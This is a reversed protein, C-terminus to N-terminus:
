SLCHVVLLLGFSPTTQKQSFVAKRKLLKQSVSQVKGEICCIKRWHSKREFCNLRGNTKRSVQKKFPLVKYKGFVINCETGDVANSMNFPISWATYLVNKLSKSVQEFSYQMIEYSTKIQFGYSMAMFPTQMQKLWIRCEKFTLAAAHEELFVMGSELSPVWFIEKFSIAREKSLCTASQSLQLLWITNCHFPRRRTKFFYYKCVNFINCIEKSVINCQNSNSYIYVNVYM